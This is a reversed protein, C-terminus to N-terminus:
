KKSELLDALRTMIWTENYGVSEAENFTNGSRDIYVPRFIKVISHMAETPNPDIYIIYRDRWRAAIHRREVFETELLGLSEDANIIKYDLTNLVDRAAWFVASTSTSYKRCLPITKLPYKNKEEKWDSEPSSQKQARIEEKDTDMELLKGVLERALEVSLPMEDMDEAEQMGEQFGEFAGERFASRWTTLYSDTIFRDVREKNSVNKCEAILQGEGDHETSRIFPAGPATCGFLAITNFILLYIGKMRLFEWCNTLVGKM